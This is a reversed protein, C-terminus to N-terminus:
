KNRMKRAFSTVKRAQTFTHVSFGQQCSQARHVPAHSGQVQEAQRDRTGAAAIKALVPVRLKRAM